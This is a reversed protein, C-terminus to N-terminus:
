QSWSVFVQYVNSLNPEHDEFTSAKLIGCFIALPSCIQCNVFAFLLLDSVRPRFILRMKGSDKPANLQFFISIKFWKCARFDWRLVQGRIAMMSMTSSTPWWLHESRYMLTTLISVFLRFFGCFHTRRLAQDSAGTAKKAEPPWQPWCHNCRTNM